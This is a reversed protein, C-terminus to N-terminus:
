TGLVRSRMAAAFTSPKAGTALMLEVAVAAPGSPGREEWDLISQGPDRGRLGLLRGLEAAHLPRGLGWIEGLTRRAARLEEGTM